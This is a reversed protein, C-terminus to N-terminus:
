ENYFVHKWINEIKNSNWGPPEVVNERYDSPDPNRTTFFNTYDPLQNQFCAILGDIGDPREFSSFRVECDQYINAVYGGPLSIDDHPEVTSDTLDVLFSTVAGEVIAADRSGGFTYDNTEWNFHRRGAVFAYFSATGESFACRLSIAESNGHGNDDDDDQSCFGGENGGLAEEHFAHGYEHAVVFDGFSEGVHSTGNPDDLITIADNGRSYFSNDQNARLRFSIKPRSAGFFAEGDIVAQRAVGYVHSMNARGRVTYTRGCNDYDGRSKGARNEPFSLDEENIIIDGNETFVDFEFSYAQSQTCGIGYEGQENADISGGGVERGDFEDIITLEGDTDSLPDISGDTQNFYTAEIIITNSQSQLEENPNAKEGPSVYRIRQEEDSRVFPGPQPVVGPPFLKNDFENTLITQTSDVWVWLQKFAFDNIWKGNISIPKRGEQEKQKVTTYIAYYGPETVNITTKKNLKQTKGMQPSTAKESALEQSLPIKIRNVGGLKNREREMANLEPLIVKLETEESELLSTATVTITTPENLGISKAGQIDLSYRDISRIDGDNKQPKIQENETTKKVSTSLDSCSNLM